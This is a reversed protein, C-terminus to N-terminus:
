SHLIVVPVKEGAPYLSLFLEGPRTKAFMDKNKNPRFLLFTPVLGGAIKLNGHGKDVVFKPASPLFNRVALQPLKPCEPLNPCKTM